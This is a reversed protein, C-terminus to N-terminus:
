IFIHVITFLIVISMEHMDKLSYINANTNTHALLLILPYLIHM